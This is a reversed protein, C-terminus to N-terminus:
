LLEKLPEGIAPFEERWKSGVKNVLFPSLNGKYFVPKGDLAELCSRLHDEAPQYRKAGNTAAGIVAWDLSSKHRRIIDSVDFSLPEISVWRWQCRCEALKQLAVDFWKAQQDPSLEKGFMFTPPASVGVLVNPPFTFKALNGPQKTLVFFVHQRCREMTMIVQEVCLEPVSAGLLDSMSDIFIGAPEKLKEIAELEKADFRVNAFGGPYASQALKNAVEEAYCIAITGDPMRWRCEHKCGKIPNSTYGPRGHIQTWEIGRRIYTGDPKRTDQRNM